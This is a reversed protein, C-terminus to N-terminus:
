KRRLSKSSRFDPISFRNRKARSPGYFETDPTHQDRLLSKSRGPRWRLSGSPSASHQRQRQVPSHADEVTVASLSLAMPKIAKTKSRNAADQNPTIKSCQYHRKSFRRTERKIQKRRARKAHVRMMWQLLSADPIRSISNPSGNENEGCNM